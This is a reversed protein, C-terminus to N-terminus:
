SFRFNNVIFVSFGNLDLSVHSSAIGIAVDTGSVNGSVTTPMTLNGTLKYNGPQTIRYPFGGAAM